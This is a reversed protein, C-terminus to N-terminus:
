KAEQITTFFLFPHAMYIAMGTVAHHSDKRVLPAPHIRVMLIFHEYKGSYRGSWLSPKGTLM